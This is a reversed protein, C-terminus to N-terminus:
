VLAEVASVRQRVQVQVQTTTTAVGPLLTAPIVISTASVSGGNAELIEQSIVTELDGTVKIRTQKGLGLGTRGANEYAFGTGVITVDGAGPVGLTASTITPLTHATAFNTSGDDEVVAIAAGNPLATFLNIARRPDPNYSASLYESLVGVLFSDVAVDTDAFQPAIANALAESTGRATPILGLANASTGAGVTNITAVSVDLPGGPPALATIFDSAAPVTRAGDTLGLLTNATSGNGVTDLEIYSDVGRITSELQLRDGSSPGVQAVIDLSTAALATNVASVVAALDALAGAAITVNVFSGTASTRLRLVDSTALVLTIPYTGTLDSSEIAAGAGVTSDALVAEIAAETVRSLYREQGRPETSPNYQSVPELDTLRLPGPLDDRIVAIRM